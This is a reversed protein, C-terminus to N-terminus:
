ADAAERALGKGCMGCTHNRPKGPMPSWCSAACSLSMSLNGTSSRFVAGPVAPLPAEARCCHEGAEDFPVGAERPPERDDNQLHHQDGHSHVDHRGTVQVSVRAVFLQAGARCRCCGGRNSLGRGPLRARTSTFGLGRGLPGLGAGPQSRHLGLQVVHGVNQICRLYAMCSRSQSRPGRRPPLRLRGCGRARGRPHVRFRGGGGHSRLGKGWLCLIESSLVM